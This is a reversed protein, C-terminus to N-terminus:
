VLPAPPRRLTLRVVSEDVDRLFAHRTGHRELEVLAVDHDCSTRAGVRQVVLTEDGETLVVHVLLAVRRAEDAQETQRLTDARELILLERRLGRLTRKRSFR